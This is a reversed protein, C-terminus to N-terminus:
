KLREAADLIIGDIDAFAEAAIEEFKSYGRDVVYSAYEEGMELHIEVENDSESVVVAGTSQQLHGTQNQYAHTFREEIAAEQLRREIAKAMEGSSGLVKEAESKGRHVDRADVKIM